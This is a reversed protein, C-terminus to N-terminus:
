QPRARHDNRWGGAARQGVDLPAARVCNGGAQRAAFVADEADHILAQLHLHAPRLQAVGLSVTVKLADLPVDVGQLAEARERIREAVDLAGTVDAHALFVAVQSPGYRAIADAGRLTSATQRALEMLLADTAAAGHSETLRAHRDLDVLLLAAGTGYRRARAWEREILELFLARSSVGHRQGASEASADQAGPLCRRAIALGPVAAAAVGALAAGVAGVVASLGLGQTLLLAGGAAVAATSGALVLVAWALPLRGFRLGPLPRQAMAAPPLPAPELLAAAGAEAASRLSGAPVPLSDSGRRAHPAVPSAPPVKPVKPAKPKPPPQPPEPLM